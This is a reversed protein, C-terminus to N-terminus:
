SVVLRKKINLPYYLLFYQCMKKNTSYFIPRLSPTGSSSCPPTHSHEFGCRLSCRLLLRVLVHQLRNPSQLERTTQAVHLALRRHAVNDNVAPRAGVVDDRLLDDLRETVVQQDRSDVRVSLHRRADPLEHDALHLVLLEGDDHEILDCQRQILSPDDPAVGIALDSDAHSLLEVLLNSREVGDDLHHLPHHLAVRQGPDETQRRYGALQPVRDDGADPRLGLDGAGTATDAGLALRASGAARDELGDCLGATATPLEGTGADRVVFLDRRLLVGILDDLADPIPTPLTGVGSVGRRLFLVGALGLDGLDLLRRGSAVLGARLLLFSLARRM